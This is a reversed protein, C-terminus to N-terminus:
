KKQDNLGWDYELYSVSGKGMSAMEMAAADPLYTSIAKLQASQSSGFDEAFWKLIPSIHFRQRKADFQFKTQDAFFSKANKTLQHDLRDPVYAENLLRPCGISACVIAFHIRPEGMKRLVQHEIDDLSYQKNAVTLKLNKWINYGVFRATHNRISSTPYERLIGKITVANYANIWFALMDEQTGRPNVKSLRLLYQDLMRTDEANAKWATYNVMGDSDVYKNLLENWSSHDVKSIQIQDVANTRSGLTIDQAYAYGMLPIWSVLTLSVVQMSRFLM